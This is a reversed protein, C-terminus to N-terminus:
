MYCLKRAAQTFGAYPGKPRMARCACVHICASSVVRLLRAYICTLMGEQEQDCFRCLAGLWLM